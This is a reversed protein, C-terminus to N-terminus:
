RRTNPARHVASAPCAACGGRPPTAARELARRGLAALPAPGRALRAAVRGRLRWRTAPPLLSWAAYGASAAVLAVVILQQWM